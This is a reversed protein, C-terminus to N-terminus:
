VNKARLPCHCHCHCHSYCHLLLKFHLMCLLPRATDTTPCQHHSWPQTHSHQTANRGSAGPSLMPTSASTGAPPEIPSCPLATTRAQLEIATHQSANRGSTILMNHGSFCRICFGHQRHRYNLTDITIDHIPSWNSAARQTRSVRTLIICINSTDYTDKSSSSNAVSYKFWESSFPYYQQGM